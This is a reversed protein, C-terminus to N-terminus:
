KVSFPGDLRGEVFQRIMPHDTDRFFSAPGQAVIRGEHLMYIHDAVHFAGKMDHSVVVSTMGENREQTLRILEDIQACLIPDLGTTPEDYLLIDPTHALARALGVRKKMGGSLEAPMKDIAESLSVQELVEAVRARVAQESLDTHERLPFAINQYVSMSDFLAAHQFVMGFRLRLRRLQTDNMQTLDKDDVFIRGSDPAMLGMAHKLTVSKGTGSRGIIVTCWGKPIAVNLGRLIHHKGFSKHVDEFRM